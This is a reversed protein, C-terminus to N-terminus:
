CISIQTTNHKQIMNKNNNHITKLEKLDEHPYLLFITKSYNFLHNIKHDIAVEM